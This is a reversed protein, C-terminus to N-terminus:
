VGEKQVKIHEKSSWLPTKCMVCKIKPTHKTDFGVKNLATKSGHYSPKGCKPCSKEYYVKRGGSM